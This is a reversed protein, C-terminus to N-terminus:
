FHDLLGPTSFLPLPRLATFDFWCDIVFEPEDQVALVRKIPPNEEIFDKSLSPPETFQQSLHWYDLTAEDDSRLKGTILSNNYRYEAYREQYGFVQEDTAPNGSCWIEKERIAQEGLHAFEPFYEDLRTSRFFMKDVARQYTYNPSYICCLGLVYCHEVFSTSFGVSGSARAFAALNGQPSTNDTNSTQAVANVIFDISGGGLYEPRQLRFDPSTVGFHSLLSEVYRTGGRADRELLHQVAFAERLSNITAATADSLDAILGSHEKNTSIGIVSNSYPKIMQPDNPNIVDGAHLANYNNNWGVDCQSAGNKYFMASNVMGKDIINARIGLPKGNGIVPASAGLPLSVDPGKQVFPLAGTFYDKRKGRRHLGHDFTAPDECDGLNIPIEDILNEDRFWENYVLDYCRFPLANVTISYGEDPKPIGYYDYLPNALWAARSISITPYTTHTTGLRGKHSGTIFDEFNEWVLRKPISFFFWSCRVNDMFPVIPTTMRCLQKANLKWSDGPLAEKIFLPVLYGSDLTSKHGFSIDFKSRQIELNASRDFSHTYQPSSTHSNM